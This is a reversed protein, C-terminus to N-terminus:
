QWYIALINLYFSYILYHLCFDCVKLENRLQDVRFENLVDQVNSLYLNEIIRDIM